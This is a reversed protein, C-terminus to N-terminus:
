ASSPATGDFYTLATAWCQRAAARGTARADLDGQAFHIGGLRRSMGAQVAADSFTPWTLTVDTAPVLGPEVRSSGRPVTVSGGFRDSGTFLRLIEAGAASFNSHGSSYEAFPPTPFSTPQYPFWDEGAIRQTGRGPGAWATITEGRFLWRIATIPRVSDFAVKNDWACCGADFIANTLAFYLKVARDLEHERSGTGDRELVEQAFLNWHGPPLESRPGDAWYEAIVKQEDTLNASLDVLEQAQAVFEPSGHRAPGSPSVLQGSVLAFPRVLRWHAGVFSPTVLTGSGDRYTLPQWRNVDHVTSPDFATRTDMAENAPRYGTYDSYPAGPKGGPEDGLQNAGDRHRFALVERATLNGIGAPSGTDFSDAAPDLGLSAMLPDFVAAKSAPFLDAAARYAAYSVAEVKNEYRRERAPRRLAGGLRTGVAVRDYAAWADYACTHAVALARAVMPPGLKADRVAQLLAQNWLVVPNAAHTAGARATLAGAVDPLLLALGGAGAAQLFRSRTLRGDLVSRRDSV